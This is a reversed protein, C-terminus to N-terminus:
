GHEPGTRGSAATQEERAGAPGTADHARLKEGEVDVHPLLRELWGPLWWSAQGLLSMLAPVLIMRVIFADFFVAAALAYGLAQVMSSDALVFGGFVSIMIIGAATVVRANHAFGAVVADRPRAGRVYEERMRSVLFVQYDMALGFVVGIMFIPLLNLIIGLPVVGLAGTFWGWQFVAVVMGLTAGVSLLFGLAASLPVLVSRFVIMLLVFAMGVVIILYPPLANALKTSMDINLATQGTVAIRAGTADRVQGGHDRIENVLDETAKSAPGGTPVVSLLATDGAENVIPAEVAAVHDLGQVVQRTREGAAQPNRRDAADVVVVLPGNFGPGFGESLLDYAKRQTAHAPETGEDPLGLRMDLVPIAVVVLFALTGVIAPIPHGTVFRALRQGLPPDLKLVSGTPPGADHVAGAGSGEPRENRARRGLIRRGTFGLVAPLLTLAVAVTVAVALAAALAIQTLPPLQVVSLGCLAIIVTLGAFVVASGATGIAHGAAEEPERGSRIEHRYRFVIFLAYDIALAMGIMLAMVMTDETLNIFGTAAYVASISIGLGVFALLLPLGAAVLSGLAILLTVAAVLVGIMEMLGSGTPKIADGGMEVTLGQARAPDASDRLGARDAETLDGAPVRYSVEAYGIRGDKSLAGPDYGVNAVKPRAKLTGVVKEVASKAAPEKLTRGQPAAFVVRATAGDASFGPFREALLDNAVQSETGSVRFEESTPGSLGAAGAIAAVLLGLWVLAVLKRRRFSLRGLRYLLMSM